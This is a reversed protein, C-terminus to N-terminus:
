LPPAISRVAAPAPAREGCVFDISLFTCKCMRGTIRAQGLSWLGRAAPDGDTPLKVDFRPGQRLAGAWVGAGPEGVWKADKFLRTLMPHQNPVALWYPELAARPKVLAFGASRLLADAKGYGFGDEGIEGKDKWFDEVAQGVTSRTGNRWTEVPVSFMYDLCARWNERADEMEPLLNPALAAAWVPDDASHFECAENSTGIMLEACALLVGYTRQGRMEHGFAALARQWAALTDDFRHFNEALRRLLMRGATALQNMDLVIAQTDAPLKDLQLLCLRSLDQPELPPRNISSFLFASRAQFEVGTHEGGGRLMLAGSAALRALKIINKAKRPDSESELEDVAVPVADMGIHQYIGAATTDAAQVLADGLVAKIVEQFTSKGTAKDGTIFVTPRWPMAGGLMAMGIWGLALFPDVLPRQWNWSKFLPVLYRAPDDAESVMDPWPTPVPPRTPYVNRGLEGLTVLQMGKESSTYLADGCHLVLSGDQGRWAGRGRVREVQSWPGKKSCAEFLCDIADDAAVGTVGGAKESWKPWAWMTFASRGMFLSQVAKKSAKSYNISRLQGITDLFVYEDGAVGLPMVPCDPPLGLADPEWNGPQVDAKGIRRAKGPVPDNGARFAKSVLPQADALSARVGATNPEKAM